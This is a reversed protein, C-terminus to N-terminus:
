QYDYTNKGSDAIREFRASANPCDRIVKKFGDGCDKISLANDTRSTKIIQYVFSWDSNPLNFSEVGTNLGDVDSM